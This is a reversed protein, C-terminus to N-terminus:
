FLILSSSALMDRVTCLTQIPDGMETSARLKSCYLYYVIFMLEVM